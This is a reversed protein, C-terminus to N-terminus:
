RDFLLRDFRVLYMGSATSAISPRMSSSMEWSWERGSHVTGSVFAVTSEAGLAGAEADAAPALAHSAAAPV